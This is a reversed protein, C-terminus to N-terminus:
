NSMFVGRFSGETVSKSSSCDDGDKGTFSFTGEIKTDTLTTIHLTGTANDCEGTDWSTDSATEEYSLVSQSSPSITYDGTANIGMLYIAFSSSGTQDNAGAIEIIRTAGTGTSVAVGVSNNQVSFTQKWTGDVKAKIYTGSGPTSGGGGNDDSKSCSLAVLAAGVMVIRNLTKLTKM